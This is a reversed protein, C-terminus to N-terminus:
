NNTKNNINKTINVRYTKHISIFKNFRFNRVFIIKIKQSIQFEITKRQSTHAIYYIKYPSHYFVM